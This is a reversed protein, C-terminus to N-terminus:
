PGAHHQAIVDRVPMGGATGFRQEPEDLAREPVAHFPNLHALLVHTRAIQARQHPPNQRQGVRVARANQHVRAGIDGQRRARVTDM